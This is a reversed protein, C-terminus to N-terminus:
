VCACLMDYICTNRFITLNPAALDVTLNDRLSLNLLKGDGYRVVRASLRLIIYYM